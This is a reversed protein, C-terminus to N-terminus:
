VICHWLAALPRHLLSGAQPVGGGAALASVGTASYVPLFSLSFRSQGSKTICPSRPSLYLDQLLIAAGGPDEDNPTWQLGSCSSNKQSNNEEWSLMGRVLSLSVQPLYFYPAAADPTTSDPKRLRNLNPMCWSVQCGRSLPAWPLLGMHGLKISSKHDVRSELFFIAKRGQTNLRSDGMFIPFYDKFFKGRSKIIKNEFMLWLGLHSRSENTICFFHFVLSEPPYYSNTVDFAYRATVRCARPVPM